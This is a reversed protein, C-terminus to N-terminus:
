KKTNLLGQIQEVSWDKQIATQIIESKQKAIMYTIYESICMGALLTIVIAVVGIIVWDPGNRQEM